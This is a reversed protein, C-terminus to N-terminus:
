NGYGGCGKCLVRKTLKLKKTDGRYLAELDVQLPFVTDDGRRPGRPGRSGGGGGFLESFIDGPSSSPGGQTAAEEGYQDYIKRKEPDSLVEYAKQIEKFQCILLCVVWTLVSCEFQRPVAYICVSTPCPLTYSPRRRVKEPDGGKDPHHEMAQRRFAKKIADQQSDKPIGLTTYFKSNDV